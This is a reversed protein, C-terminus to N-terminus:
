NNKLYIAPLIWGVCNPKDSPTFFGKGIVKFKNIKLDDILKPIFEKISNIDHTYYIISISWDTENSDNDYFANGKSDEIWYTIFNDPYDEDAGLTGQLYLPLGYADLVNYLEDIIM